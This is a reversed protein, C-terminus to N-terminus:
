RWLTRPFHQSHPWATVWTACTTELRWTWCSRAINWREHGAVCVSGDRHLKLFVAAAAQQLEVGQVVHLVEYVETSATAGVEVCVQGHPCEGWHVQRVEDRAFDCELLRPDAANRQGGEGRGGGSGPAFSTDAAVHDPRAVDRRVHEHRM